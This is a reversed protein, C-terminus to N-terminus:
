GARIRAYVRELDTVIRDWTYYISRSLRLSNKSMMVRKEDDDILDSIARSLEIPDEPPVLIGNVGNRVLEPVATTNTAIIPLGSAMAELLVIGFSEFRTPLVFIDSLAYRKALEERPIHGLLKVHKALNLKKILDSLTDYLPGSGAIFLQVRELKGKRNLMDMANLLIDFGKQMELRGCTFLIIEGRKEKTRPHFFTRDVPVSFVKIKERPIHYGKVVDEASYESTVLVTDSLHGVIMAPVLSFLHVLIKTKLSYYAPIFSVHPTCVASFLPLKFRFVTSLLAFFFGNVSGCQVVHFRYRKHLHLIYLAFIFGNLIEIRPIKKFPFIKIGPEPQPIAKFDDISGALVIYIHHGRRKLANAIGLLFVQGGGTKFGVRPSNIIMCINM